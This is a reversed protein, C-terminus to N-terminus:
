HKKKKLLRRGGLDVRVSVSKGWVGSKRDVEDVHGLQYAALWRAIFFGVAGLAIIPLRQLYTSPSYTWGPPVDSPDMMGEHSMGPMMPALIAFAIVLAGIATDNAYLDSSCVDSSWDSIRM